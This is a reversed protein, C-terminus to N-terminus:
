TREPGMLEVAREIGHLNLEFTGRMDAVRRLLTKKTTKSQLCMRNLTQTISGRDVRSGRTHMYILVHHINSRGGNQRLHIIIEDRVEKALEYKEAPWSRTAIARHEGAVPRAEVPPRALQDALDHKLGRLWVEALGLVYAQELPAARAMAHKFQELVVEAPFPERSGEKSSHDSAEGDM